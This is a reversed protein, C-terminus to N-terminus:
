ANAEESAAAGAGDERPMLRQFPRGIPVVRTRPELPGQSEAILAFHEAELYLMEVNFPRPQESM